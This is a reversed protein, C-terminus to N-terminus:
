RSEDQWLTIKGKALTGATFPGPVPNGTDRKQGFYDQTLNWPSGDPQVFEMKSVLTKGLLESTVIDRKVSRIQRMDPQLELQIGGSEKHVAFKASLSLANKDGPM